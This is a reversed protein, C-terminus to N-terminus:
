ALEGEHFAPALLPVEDRYKQEDFIYVGIDYWPYQIYVLRGYGTVLIVDSFFNFLEIGTSFGIAPNDAQKILAYAGSLLLKKEYIVSLLANSLGTLIKGISKKDKELWSM